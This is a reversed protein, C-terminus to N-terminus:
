VQKKFRNRRFKCVLLVCTYVEATAWDTTYFRNRLELGTEPHSFDSLRWELFRGSRYIQTVQYFTVFHYGNCSLCQKFNNMMTGESLYFIRIHFYVTKQRNESISKRKYIVETMRIKNQGTQKRLIVQQKNIQRGFKTVMQDAGSLHM